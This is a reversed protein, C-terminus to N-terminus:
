KCVSLLENGEELIIDYFYKHAYPATADRGGDALYDPKM